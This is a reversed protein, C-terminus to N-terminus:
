RISCAARASKRSAGIPQSRTKSRTPWPALPPRSTSRSPSRNLPFLVAPAQREASSLSATLRPDSPPDPLLRATRDCPVWWLPETLLLADVHLCEGLRWLAAARSVYDIPIEQAHCLWTRGMGGPRGYATVERHQDAPRGSESGGPLPRCPGHMATGRGPQEGWRGFNAASVFSAWPVHRGYRHLVQYSLTRPQADYFPGFKVKGTVADFVGDHSIQVVAWGAPPQDEVAHVSVNTPPMAVLQVTADAIQRRVFPVPAIM